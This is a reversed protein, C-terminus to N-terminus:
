ECAEALSPNLQAFRPNSFMTVICFRFSHFLRNRPRNKPAPDSHTSRPQPPQGTRRAADRDGDVLLWCRRARPRSLWTNGLSGQKTPSLTAGPQSGRTIPLPYLITCFCPTSTSHSHFGLVWLRLALCVLMGPYDREGLDARKSITGPKSSLILCMAASLASIFASDTQEPRGLLKM